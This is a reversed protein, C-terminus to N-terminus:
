AMHKSGRKPLTRGSWPAAPRSIRMMRDGKIRQEIWMLIEIYGKHPCAFRCWLRGAIATFFFLALARLAM